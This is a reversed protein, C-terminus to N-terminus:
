LLKVIDSDSPWGVYTGIINGDRIIRYESADRWEGNYEMEDLCNLEVEVGNVTRKETYRIRTVSM